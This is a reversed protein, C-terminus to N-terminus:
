VTALRHKELLKRLFLNLRHASNPGESLRALDVTYDVRAVRSAEGARLDNLVAAEVVSAIMRPTVQGTLRRQQFVCLAVRQLKQRKSLSQAHLFCDALHELLDLQMKKDGRRPLFNPEFGKWRRRFNLQSAYSYRNERHGNMMPSLSSSLTKKLSFADTRNGLMERICSMWPNWSPSAPSRPEIFLASKPDTPHVLARSSSPLDAFLPALFANVLKVRERLARLCEFLEQFGAEADESRSVATILSSWQQAESVFSIAGDKPAGFKVRIVGTAVLRGLVLTWVHSKPIFGDCATVSKKYEDIFEQTTCQTDFARVLLWMVVHRGCEAGRRLQIFESMSAAVQDRQAENLQGLLAGVESTRVLMSPNVQKLHSLKSVFPQLVSSIQGPPVQDRVQVPLVDLIRRFLSVRVGDFSTSLLRLLELWTENQVADPRLGSAARLADLFSMRYRALFHNALWPTKIHRMTQDDLPAFSLIIHEQCLTGDLLRAKLSQCCDVTFENLKLLATSDKPKLECIRGQLQIIEPPLLAQPAAPRAEAVSEEATLIIPPGADEVDPPPQLFPKDAESAELWTRIRGTVDFLSFGVAKRLREQASIPPQWQWADREHSNEFYWTPLHHLPSPITGTM